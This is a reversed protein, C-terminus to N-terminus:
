PSPLASGPLRADRARRRARDVVAAGARRVAARDTGAREYTVEM